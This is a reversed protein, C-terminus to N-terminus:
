HNASIANGWDKYKTEILERYYIIEDSSLSSTRCNSTYEGPKGKYWTPKGNYKFEIDYKEPYKFINSGPMPQFISSDIDDPKVAEIWKITESITEKSEGPLGVILFCKVRIGFQRLLNVAKTNINVTTGKMNQKLIKNSGSEIGIGVEVVGMKKMYHCTEETILNSRAFCRFTFDYHELLEAIEKLRQKHYIFVDDFIMFAEYGYEKNLHFIESVTRASSQMRFNNSIKACFACNGYCSRSTMIPTAPKGDITYTYKKISLADRDPFPLIDINSKDFIMKTRVNLDPRLYDLLKYEGEGKIVWDFGYDVCEQFMHTPHPGGAIVTKGQSQLFDCIAYAQEKQPTTFSVGVIDAEADLLNDGAGMDLCQVKVDYQKLFSALYLIGLPPFVDQDILFDSKPFVLTIDPKM